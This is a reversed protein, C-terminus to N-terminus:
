EKAKVETIEVVCIYEGARLDISALPSQSLQDDICLYFNLPSQLDERLRGKKVRVEHTVRVVQYDQTTM